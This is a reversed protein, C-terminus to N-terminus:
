LLSSQKHLRKPLWVRGLIWATSWGIGLLLPLLPFPQRWLWWQLLVVTTAQGALLAFALRSWDTRKQMDPRPYLRFWPQFRHIRRIWPLQIGTILLGLPLMLASLWWEGRLFAVLLATVGTLRVYVGFPERYRFFTRLYLYLYTNEPRTPPFCRLVPNFLPRPKIENGIQPVDVFHGALRYWASVTQEERLLLRDWPIIRNQSCTRWYHFTLWTFWLIAVLLPWGFLGGSFLWLTILGNSGVRLLLLPAPRDIRLELWYARLNWIKLPILIALAALFDWADGLRAHFLPFLFAMWFVVKLSQMIGSYLLSGRFYGRLGEEAPLLFVPDAAKVYTRIGTRSLIWTLLVAMLLNVPFEPPLGSLLARYGFYILLLVAFPLFHLGKAILATYRAGKIWAQKRRRRFLSAVPNM